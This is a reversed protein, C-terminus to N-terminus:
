FLLLECAPLSPFCLSWMKRAIDSLNYKGRLLPDENKLRPKRPDDFHRSGVTRRNESLRVFHILSHTFSYDNIKERFESPFVARSSKGPVSGIQRRAVVFCRAHDVRADSM